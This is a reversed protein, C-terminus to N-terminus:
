ESPNNAFFICEQENSLRDVEVLYAGITTGDKEILWTKVEMDGAKIEVEFRVAM